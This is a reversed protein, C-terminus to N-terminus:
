DSVNSSHVHHLVNTDEMEHQGLAQDLDDYWYRGTGDTTVFVSGDELQYFEDIRQNDRTVTSLDSHYVHRFKTTSM